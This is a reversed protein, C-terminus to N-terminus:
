NLWWALALLLCVQVLASVVLLRQLLQTRSGSTQAMVVIFPPPGDHRLSVSRVKRGDFPRESFEHSAGAPIDAPVLGADGTVFHGDTGFVAFYVSESQDFLLTSMEQRTLDLALREGDSRVHAALAYADDLLARDFA